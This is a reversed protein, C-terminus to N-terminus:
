GDSGAEAPRVFIRLRHSQAQATALALAVGLPARVTAVLGADSGRAAVLLMLNRAILESRAPGDADADREAVVDVRVGARLLSLPPAAAPDISIPVAREGARLPRAGTRGGVTSRLVYDGRTLAVRSTRGVVEDLRRAMGPTLDGAAIRVVRLASRPVVVDSSVGHVAVVVDAQAAESGGASSVLGILALILAVLAIGRDRVLRNV